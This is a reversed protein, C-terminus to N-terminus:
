KMAFHVGTAILATMIMFGVLVMIIQRKVPADAGANPDQYNQM